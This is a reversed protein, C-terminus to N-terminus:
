PATGPVLHQERLFRAIAEGIWRHGDPGPHWPDDPHIRLSEIPTAAPGARLDVLPVALDRAISVIRDGALAVDSPATGLYPLVAIAVRGGARAERDRIERYASANAQDLRDLVPDARGESARHDHVTELVRRVLASHQALARAFPGDGLALPVLAPAVFDIRWHDGELTQREPAGFDNLCFGIVVLDPSLEVGHREFWAAEQRANYGIVGGNWVEVGPRERDLAREMVKPYTDDLPMGAGLTISDGLVLVRFVGAPKAAPREVDRMGLSNIRVHGFAVNPVLEYGLEGAAPRHLRYADNSAPFTLTGIVRPQETWRAGIEGMACAVIAASSAIALRTRARLHM